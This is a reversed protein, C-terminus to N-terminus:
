SFSKCSVSPQSVVSKRSVSQQSVASQSSVSQQSIESQKLIQALFIFISQELCVQVPRVFSSLNHSRPSRDSGFLAKRIAWFDLPWTDTILIDTPQYNHHCYKETTKWHKKLTFHKIKWSERSAAWTPSGMGTDAPAAPCRPWTRPGSRRSGRARRGTSMAHDGGPPRPCPGPWSGSHRASQGRTGPSGQGRGRPRPLSCTGPWCDKRPSWRCWWPWDTQPWNLCINITKKKIRCIFGSVTPLLLFFTTSGLPEQLIFSFAQWM